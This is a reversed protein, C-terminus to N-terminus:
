WCGLVYITGSYLSAEMFGQLFRVACLQQYTKCAASCMTLCSWMILTFPLWISPRVKQIILAHPINGVV